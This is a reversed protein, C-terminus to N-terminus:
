NQLRRIQECDLSFSSANPSLYVREYEVFRYLNGDDSSGGLASSYPIKIPKGINAELFSDVLNVKDVGAINAKITIKKSVPNISLNEVQRIGSDGYQSKNPSSTFNIPIEWESSFPLLPYPM